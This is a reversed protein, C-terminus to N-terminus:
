RETQLASLHKDTGKMKKWGGYMTNTKRRRRRAEMAEPPAWAEPTASVPTGVTPAGWDGIKGFGGLKPNPRPDRNEKPAKLGKDPEVSIHQAMIPQSVKEASNLQRPLPFDHQSRRPDEPRAGVM